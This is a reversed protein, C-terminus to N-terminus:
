RALERVLRILEAPEFPKRVFAAGATALDPPLERASLLIVPIDALRVYSRLIGLLEAGGMVPMMLDLVIVSPAPMTLLLHLAREGNEAVHVAYGAHELMVRLVDRISEDDDVVLITKGGAAVGTM